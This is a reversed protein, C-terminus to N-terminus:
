RTASSMPESDSSRAGSPSGMSGAASSTSPAIQLQNDVEKVGSLKEVKAEIDQKEKETATTGQLTVKGNETRLHVQKSASALAADAHLAQHITENLTRDAQTMGQDAAGRMGANSASSSGMTGAPGMPGSGPRTSEPSSPMGPNHSSSGSPSPSEMTRSSGPAAGSSTQSQVFTPVAFASIGVALVAQRWTGKKM